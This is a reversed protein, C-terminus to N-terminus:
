DDCHTGELILNRITQELDLIRAHQENLRKLVPYGDRAWSKDEPEGLQCEFNNPGLLTFFDPEPDTLIHYPGGTLNELTPAM